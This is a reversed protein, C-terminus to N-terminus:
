SQGRGNTPLDRSVLSLRSSCLDGPTRTAWTRVGAWHAIAQARKENTPKFDNIPKFDTQGPHHQFERRAGPSIACLGRLEKSVGRCVDADSVDQLSFRVVINCLEM